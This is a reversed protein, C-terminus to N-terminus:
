GLGISSSFYNVLMLAFSAAVAFGTTWGLAYARRREVVDVPQRDAMVKGLLFGAAFGGIHAYNDIGPMMGIIVAYAVLYFLQTRLMRMGINHSSGTLALLLGVLGLVSGSAGVSQHGTAASLVYGCVGTTIFVFFFRASGYLDEIMPALDMLIWMNFGIHLLSAHLFVATIFRWPQSLDSPISSLPLSAGMRYLTTGNIGGLGFLAGLGGSPAAFGSRKITILLSVGYLFCCLGLIGYTVPSTQPLVKSLSRSAAALSFTLSAGCQHCRGSSSGVLTGCAPCLRPRAVPPQRHFLSAIQNRWRDIKYRWRVPLQVRDGQSSVLRRDIIRFIEDPRSIADTRSSAPM